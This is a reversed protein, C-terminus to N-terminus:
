TSLTPGSFEPNCCSNGKKEFDKRFAEEPFLLQATDISPSDTADSAPSFYAMEWNRSLIAKIEEVAELRDPWESRPTLLLAIQKTM